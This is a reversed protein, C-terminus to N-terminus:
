RGLTKNIQDVQSSLRIRIERLKQQAALKEDRSMTTDREISREQASLKNLRDALTFIYKKRSLIDRNQDVYNALAEADGMQRLRSMTRNAEDAIRFLEYAQTVVKPNKSKADIFFSRIVPLSSIETPMRDPGISANEMMMSTAQVLYTGLPGGYGSILKDIVIPSMGGFKGTTMDYFIPLGGLMMAIQSTSSNYQLSPDLRLKGESVLPLGTYFSHNTLIEIAPLIAQPIPNVGLTAQIQGWFLQANERASAEGTTTKYIQQPITNFLLGVEFAKPIALFQGELGFQKLPVILNATKIYDDLQEYDDDGQNLAELATAIVALIGGRLLFKKGVNNDREGLSRGTAYRIGSRGAQYLVDMGQIRANLFPILKTLIGLTQSAGRRTFDLLEIAQMAAEADSLGQKKAADYVAIRTAADSAESIHGLRNWLSGLAATAGEKTTVSHVNLPLSNRRLVAALEAPGLMALDYSGVVGYSGLAKYSAGNKLATVGGKITDIVPMFDAGSTVWASVTDRLLNRAMFGPDRTVSERLIHTPLGLTEWFKGVNLRDDSGLAVVLSPDKVAFRKVVGNQSFFMVDPAEGALEDPAEDTGLIRSEGMVRTLEFAKTAAINKAISDVWFQANQMMVFMPDSTLGGAQTGTYARLKFKSATKQSSTPGLPEGYAEYIFGYYNMQNTLRGLEAQSIIGADKATTLLKKNFRQYKNYAEVVEPYERQTFDTVERVYQPTLQAPVNQGSARLWEGRRAVAYSRFIDSKDTQVGNADTPGKEAIVNFIEKMSDPDDVVKITASQMDGPSDFNIEVNGRLLMSAFIHSSRRRWALAATASYNAEMRQYNGTLKENLLKELETIYANKDAVAEKGAIGAMTSGSIEIQGHMTSLTKGGWRRGSFHNFIKDKTSVNVAPSFLGSNQQQIYPPLPAASFRGTEKTPAQREKFIANTQTSVASNYTEEAAAYPDTKTSTFLQGDTPKYMSWNSPSFVMFVVDPKGANFQSFKNYDWGEPRIGELDAFKTRSVVTMGAQSYLSPLITDFGDLKKGGLQIALQIAPVTVGFHPSGRQNFVSVIDGDEKLAFGAKGDSTIFLRMSKYEPEGYVYVAAGFENSNKATSIADFFKKANKTSPSLEHFDPHSIGAAALIDVVGPKPTYISAVDGSADVRDARSYPEPIRDTPKGGAPKRGFEWRIRNAADHTARARAIRAANAAASQIAGSNLTQNSRGNGILRGNKEIEADVKTIDVGPYDKWSSVGGEFDSVGPFWKPIAGVRLLNDKSLVTDLVNKNVSFERGDITTYVLETGGGARKFYQVGFMSRHYRGETSAIDVFPNPKNQALNVLAQITPHAVIQGSSRIWSEWHYRGLTGDSPRGVQSYLQGVKAGLGRELAEYVALGKPGNFMGAVDDYIKNTQGGGFLQNIQIRDLILVDQRGSLLIAFSLIKNDFGLNAEDRIRHFERRIEPGSRNSSFLNHVAQLKSIGGDPSTAAMNYLFDRGYSNMNNTVSNGPSYSPITRQIFLFWDDLDSRGPVSIDAPLANAPIGNAEKLAKASQGTSTMALLDSNATFTGAIAKKIFPLAGEAADLFGSEHPFSSAMRSLYTWFLLTGTFEPTATGNKYERSIADISAFGSDVGRLQDPTLGKMWTAWSNVDNSMSIAWGPPFLVNGSQNYAFSLNNVWEQDNQLPNPYNRAASNLREFARRAASAPMKDPIFTEKRRTGPQYQEEYSPNSRLFIPSVSYRVDAVRGEGQRKGIEGSEIKKFIEDHRADRLVQFIRRLFETIRNFLGVTQQPPKQGNLVWDRYMEAVAEEVVADPNSYTPNMPMGNPTYIAEAKDLYTYQKGRVNTKAVARSLIRWEEPRIVGKDRLVHIMEHNLTGVLEKVADEVSMGPRLIGTSLDVISKIGYQTEVTRAQGRILYNPDAGVLTKLEIKAQGPVIAEARNSLRSYINQLWAKTEPSYDKVTPGAIHAERLNRPAPDRLRGASQYVDVDEPPFRRDREAEYASRQDPTMDHWGIPKGFMETRLNMLDDVTAAPRKEVVVPAEPAPEAAVASDEEVISDPLIRSEEVPMEVAGIPMDPIEEESVIPEAYTDTVDREAEVLRSAEEPTLEFNFTFGKDVTQDPTTPDPQVRPDNTPIDAYYLPLDPRYDAAYKKSTSVWRGTEGEGRSGSHYVRVTDPKQSPQEVPMAQSNVPAGSVKPGVKIEQKTKAEQVEPSFYRDFMSLTRKAVVIEDAIQKAKVQPAFGEQAAVKSVLEFNDGFKVLENVREKIKRHKEAAAALTPFKQNGIRIASLKPPASVDVNVAAGTMKKYLDVAQVADDESQFYTIPKKDAGLLTYVTFGEPTENPEITVNGQVGNQALTNAAEAISIKQLDASNKQMETQLDAQLQRAGRIKRGLALQVIGEITSGAFAGTGANSLLDQGIAVDPNYVGYEMLDNAIGSAAEQAGEEIGAKALRSLRNSLIKEVLPAQSAPVKSLIKTLPGFFKSMPLAESAGIFGSLRQAALQDAESIKMGSALQQRIQEARSEAGLAVGQGAAAATGALAAGKGLLAAGKAAAGGPVLFGAASGLGQALMQATTAEKTPDIGFTSELYKRAEQSFQGAGTQAAKEAPLGLAAIGGPIDTLGTGLGYAFRGFIGSDDSTQAAPGAVARPYKANIYGSIETPTLDDAFDIIGGAEPVYVSKVM